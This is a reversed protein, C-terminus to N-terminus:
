GSSSSKPGAKGESALPISSTGNQNTTHLSHGTVPLLIAKLGQVTPGYLIKHFLLPHVPSQGFDDLGLRPFFDDVDDGSDDHCSDRDMSIFFRRHSM